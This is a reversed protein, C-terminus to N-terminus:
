APLIIHQHCHLHVLLAPCVLVLAHLHGVLLDLLLEPETNLDFLFTSTLSLNFLLFPLLHIKDFAMKTARRGFSKQCIPKLAKSVIEGRCFMMMMRRMVMAIMVLAGKM